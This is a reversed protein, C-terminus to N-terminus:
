FRSPPVALPETGLMYPVTLYLLVVLRAIRTM